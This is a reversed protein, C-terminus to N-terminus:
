KVKSLETTPTGLISAKAILEDAEAKTKGKASLMAKLSKQSITCANIIDHPTIDTGKTAEVIMHIDLEKRQKQKIAYAPTGDENLIAGGNAIAFDKAWERFAKIRKELTACITLMPAIKSPDITALANDDKPIIAVGKDVLGFAEQCGGCFKCLNCWPSAKRPYVDKNIRQNIALLAIEDCEEKTTEHLWYTATDGYWVALTIRNALPFKSDTAFSAYAALQPLYDRDSFRHKYDVVILHNDYLAIVDATGFPEGAFRESKVELEHYRSWPEHGHFLESIIANIGSFAKRVCFLTDKDVDAVDADDTLDVDGNFAKYLLEHAITGATTDANPAGGEFHPCLSWAPYSSPSLEHHAM